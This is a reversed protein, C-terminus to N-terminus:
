QFKFKKNLLLSSVATDEKKKDKVKAMASLLGGVM